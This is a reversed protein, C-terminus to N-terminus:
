KFIQFLKPLIVDKTYVSKYTNRASLAMQMWLSRSMLQQLKDALDAVSKQNILFGNKEDDVMDPIAAHYTSIVPTASNLAEIISLPQAELEYYTPLVFIDAKLFMQKITERSEIMGYVHTKKSLGCTEVEGIFNEKMEESAWTGAFHL